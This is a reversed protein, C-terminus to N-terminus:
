AVSYFFVEMKYFTLWMQNTILLHEELLMLLINKKLEYVNNM